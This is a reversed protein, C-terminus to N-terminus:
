RLVVGMSCNRSRSFSSPRDTSMTPFAQTTRTLTTKETTPVDMSFSLRPSYFTQSLSVKATPRSGSPSTDRSFTTASLLSSTTFGTQTMRLSVLNQMESALNRLAQQEEEVKQMREDRSKIWYERAAATTADLLRIDTNIFSFITHQSGDPNQWARSSPDKLQAQLRDVQDTPITICAVTSDFGLAESTSLQSLGWVVISQVDIELAYAIGPPIYTFIQTKAGETEVVFSWSLRWDFVINIMTVQDPVSCLARVLLLAFASFRVLWLKLM